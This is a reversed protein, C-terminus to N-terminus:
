RWIIFPQGLQTKKKNVFIVCKVRLVPVPNKLVRGGGEQSAMGGARQLLRGTRTGRVLCVKKLVKGRKKLVRGGKEFFGGERRSFRGERRPLMSAGEQSACPRELINPDSNAARIKERIEVQPDLTPHRIKERIKNLFPLVQAM